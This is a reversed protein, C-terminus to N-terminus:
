ETGPRTRKSIKRAPTQFVRELECHVAHREDRDLGGRRPRRLEHLFHAVFEILRVHVRLTELLLVLELKLQELVRLYGVELDEEEGERERMGSGLRVLGVDADERRKATWEGTAGHHATEDYSAFDHNVYTPYCMADASGFAHGAM